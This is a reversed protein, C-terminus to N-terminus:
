NNSWYCLKNGCIFKDKSYYGSNCMVVRYRVEESGCGVSCSEYTANAPASTLPYESCDAKSCTNCEACKSSCDSSVKKCGWECSDVDPLTKVTALHCGDVNAQECKSPCDDWQKKCGWTAKQPLNDERIHCNNTYCKECRDSCTGYTKECGYRRCDDDGNHDVKGECGKDVCSQYYKNGATDTCVKGGLTLQNGNSSRGCETYPYVSRDCYCNNYCSGINPYAMNFSCTMNGKQAATLYGREACSKPPREDETKNKNSSNTRASNTDLNEGLFDPLWYIKAQVASICLFAALVFLFRRM